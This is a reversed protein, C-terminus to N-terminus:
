SFVPTEQRTDYRNYRSRLIFTDKDYGILSLGDLYRTKVAERIGGALM